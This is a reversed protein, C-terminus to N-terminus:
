LFLDLLPWKCRIFFGHSCSPRICKLTPDPADDQKCMIWIVGTKLGVVMNEAWKSYARAPDGLEYDIPRYENDIEIAMCGRQGLNLLRTSGFENGDRMAKKM